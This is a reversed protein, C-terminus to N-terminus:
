VPLRSVRVPPPYVAGHQPDLLHLGHEAALREIALLVEDDCSPDLNLEVHDAAVHPPRVRWPTAPGTAPDPCSATLARQFEAIRPDGPGSRHEGDRCREYAARVDMSSAGDRLAWVVLDFSVAFLTGSKPPREANVNRSV